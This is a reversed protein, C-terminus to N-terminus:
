GGDAGGGRTEQGVPVVTEVTTGVGPISVIKAVGGVLAAQEEMM